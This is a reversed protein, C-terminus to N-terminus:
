LSKILLNVSIKSDPYINNATYNLTLIGDHCPWHLKLIVDWSFNVKKFDVVPVLFLHSINESNVIFVDFRPIIFWM